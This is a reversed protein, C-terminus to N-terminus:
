LSFVNFKNNESKLEEMDDIGDDRHKRDILQRNDIKDPNKIKGTDFDFFVSNSSIFVFLYNEAFRTGYFRYCIELRISTGLIAYRQAFAEKRM